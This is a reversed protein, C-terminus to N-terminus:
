EEDLPEYSFRHSLSSEYTWAAPTVLTEDSSGALRCVSVDGQGTRLKGFQIWDCRDLPGRRQDVRVIDVARDGDLHVLGQRELGRICADVDTPTMFGLRVLVGDSCITDNPADALFGDWGGPYAAEVRAAKVVVSLAEVLVPV